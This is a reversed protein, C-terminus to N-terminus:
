QVFGGHNVVVTHTATFEDDVTEKLM